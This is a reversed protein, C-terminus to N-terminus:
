FNLLGHLRLIQVGSRILAHSVIRTGEDCDDFTVAIFRKRSHGVLLPCDLELFRAVNRVLTWNHEVTKGFGLGPDVAIRSREIGAAVLEDRKRRLFEYVEDVVNEYRPALQMTQPTGQTHMICIAAGTKCLLPIMKPDSAASIDNVIEAGARIAEAAVAAKQTDISIPILTQKRLAHIVPIVRRLEEDVAVGDAGPRTSEGGIDLIDIGDAVLQLGREVAQHPEAFSGGDSFSDPTVNLIGM